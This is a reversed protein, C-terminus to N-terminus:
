DFKNELNAIKLAKFDRIFIDEMQHFSHKQVTTLVLDLCREIKM